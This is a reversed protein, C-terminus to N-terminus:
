ELYKNLVAVLETDQVPKTLYATCGSEYGHQISQQENRFSLLVVPVDKTKPNKRLERCVEFGDMGPMTIDMLILDPNEATAKALAEQGSGACLVNYDTNKSIAIRHAVRTTSSDDVLLITKPM